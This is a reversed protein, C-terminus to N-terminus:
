DILDLSNARPDAVFFLFSVHRIIYNEADFLAECPRDNVLSFHENLAVEEIEDLENQILHNYNKTFEHSECQSVNPNFIKGYPCCTRICKKINCICGRIHEQASKKTTGNEWIYNVKAYQNPKYTLGDYVIVGDAGYEGDTINISDYFKCPLIHAISSTHSGDIIFLICMVTAITWMQIQEQSRRM